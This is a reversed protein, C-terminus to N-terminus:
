EPCLWILWAFKSRILSPIVSSSTVAIRPLGALTKQLLALEIGVLQDVHQYTIVGAFALDPTHDPYRTERVPVAPLQVRSICSSLSSRVRCLLRLRALRM